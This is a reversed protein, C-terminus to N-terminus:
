KVSYCAGQESMKACSKENGAVMTETTQENTSRATNKIVQLVTM